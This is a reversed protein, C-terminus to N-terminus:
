SASDEYHRTQRAECGNCIYRVVIEDGIHERVDEHALEGCRNCRVTRPVRSTVKRTERATPTQALMAGM